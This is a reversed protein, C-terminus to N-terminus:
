TFASAVGNTAPVKRVLRYTVKVVLITFQKATVWREANVVRVSVRTLSGFVALVMSNFRGISVLRLMNVRLLVNITLVSFPPVDRCLTVAFAMNVNVAFTFRNKVCKDSEVERRTRDTRKLETRATALLRTMLNVIKLMNNSVMKVM